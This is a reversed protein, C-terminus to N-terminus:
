PEPRPAGARAEARGALIARLALWSGYGNWIAFLVLILPSVWPAGPAMITHQSDAIDMVAVVLFLGAGVVGTLAYLLNGLTARAATLVASLIFLVSSAKLTWGLLQRFLLPDGDVGPTNWDIYYFGFFGFILASLVMIAPGTLQSTKDAM